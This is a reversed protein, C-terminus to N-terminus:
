APCVPQSLRAIEKRLHKLAPTVIAVFHAERILRQPAASMLYGRAGQHLLAPQSAKLALESCHASADLTDILHDKSGNCPEAALRNVRMTLEDLEAQLEDPRDHLFENVHGLQDDVEWCCDIAGQIVGLGMGCQLVVFAGRIRAIFPRMPDAIICDDGVFVNTLRVSYTGTGEMGSFVPCRKLLVGPADCELLFM